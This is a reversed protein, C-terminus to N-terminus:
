TKSAKRAEIIKKVGENESARCLEEARAQGTRRDAAKLLDTLGWRDEEFTRSFVDEAPTNLYERILDSLDSVDTEYPYPYEQAQLLHAFQKPYDFLIEKGLTIWYRPIQTSGRRSEMRYVGCHIQFNIKDDIIQYLQKQLKSWRKM